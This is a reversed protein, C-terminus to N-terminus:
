QSDLDVAKAFLIGKEVWIEVHVGKSIREIPAEKQDVDPLDSHQSPDFHGQYVTALHNNKPDVYRLQAATIGQISCYRGGILSMSMKKIYDSEVPSFDLKEFYDGVVSLHNSAVEMPKLRIHNHVVESAIREDLPIGGHFHDNYINFVAVTLMIFSLLCVVVAM